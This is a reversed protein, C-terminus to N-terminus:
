KQNLVRQAEERMWGCCTHIQIKLNNLSDGEFELRPSQGHVPCRLNKLKEAMQGKVKALVEDEVASGLQDPSVERGNMKLKINMVVVEDKQAQGQYYGSTELVGPADRSDSNTTDISSM